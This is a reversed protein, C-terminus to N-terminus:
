RARMSCCACSWASPLHGCRVRRRCSASGSPRRVVGNERLASHVLQWESSRAFGHQVLAGSGFQPFIVPIGGRIPRGATFDSERSLFLLEDGAANRWSTVHAGHLYAEARAGSRHTLMVKPLDDAPVIAIAQPIGFAAQLADSM